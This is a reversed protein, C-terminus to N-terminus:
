LHDRFDEDSQYGTKRRWEECIDDCDMEDCIDDLRSQAADMIGDSGEGSDYGVCRPEPMEENKQCVNILLMRCPSDATMDVRYGDDMYSVTVDEGDYDLITKHKGVADRRMIPSSTDGFVGTTEEAHIRDKEVDRADCGEASIRVIGILVALSGVGIGACKLIPRWLSYSKKAM